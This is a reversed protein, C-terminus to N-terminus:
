CASCYYEFECSDIRMKQIAPGDAADMDLCISSPLVHEHFPLGNRDPVRVFVLRDALPQAWVEFWEAESKEFHVLSYDIEEGESPPSRYDWSIPDWDDIEDDGIPNFSYADEWTVRVRYQDTPASMIAYYEGDEAREFRIFEDNASASRDIRSMLRELRLLISKYM